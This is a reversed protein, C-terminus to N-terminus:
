PIVALQAMDLISLARIPELNVVAVPVVAMMELVAKTFLRM